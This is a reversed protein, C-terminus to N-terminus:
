SSIARSNEVIFGVIQCLRTAGRRLASVFVSRVARLQSECREIYVSSSRAVIRQKISLSSLPARGDMWAACVLIKVVRQTQKEDLTSSRVHVVYLVPLVMVCSNTQASPTHVCMIWLTDIYGLNM